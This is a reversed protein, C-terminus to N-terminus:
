DALIEQLIIQPYQKMHLYVLAVPYVRRGLAQQEQVVRHAPPCILCRSGHKNTNPQSQSYVCIIGPNLILSQDGILLSPLEFKPHSIAVALTRNEFVSGRM